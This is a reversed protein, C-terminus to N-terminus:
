RFRSDQCLRRAKLIWPKRHQQATHHPSQNFNQQIRFISAATRRFTPVRGCWQVTEYCLTSCSSHEGQLHLCFPEGFRQYGVIDSCQKM